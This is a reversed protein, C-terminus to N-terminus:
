LQSETLPLVHQDTEEDTTISQLRTHPNILCCNCATFYYSIVSMIFANFCTVPSHRCTSMTSRDCDLFDCSEYGVEEVSPNHLDQMDVIDPVM